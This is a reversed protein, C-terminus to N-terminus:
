SYIYIILSVGNTIIENNITVNKPDVLESTSNTELIDVDDGKIGSQTKM